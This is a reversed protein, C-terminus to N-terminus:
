RCGDGDAQSLGRPIPPLVKGLASGSLRQSGPSLGPVEAPSQDEVRREENIREKWISGCCFSELGSVAVWVCTWGGLTETAGDEEQETSGVPFFGLSPVVGM